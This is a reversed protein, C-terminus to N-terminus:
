KDLIEYEGREIKKSIDGKHFNIKIWGTFGKTTLATIFKILWAM